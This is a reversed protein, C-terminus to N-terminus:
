MYRKLLGWGLGIVLYGFALLGLWAWLLRMWNYPDIAPNMITIALFVTLAFSGIQVLLALFDAM